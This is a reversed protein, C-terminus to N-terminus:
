SPPANSEGIFCRGAVVSLSDPTPMIECVEKPFTKNLFGRFLEEARAEIEHFATGKPLVFDASFMAAKELGKFQFTVYFYQVAESM